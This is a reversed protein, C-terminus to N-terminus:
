KKFLEINEKIAKLRQKDNKVALIDDKSVHPAHNEGGDRVNPYSPQGPKAFTLIADAQARLDEESDGRLLAAPVGTESAVKEKLKRAEDAKLMEDIKKQLADARETAKQLESKSAEEAQDYKEAKAKLEEYDAYKKRERGIRDGIIADMESQTFTREPEESPTTVDKIEEAM